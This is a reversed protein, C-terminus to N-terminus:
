LNSTDNEGGLRKPIEEKLQGQLQELNRYEIAWGRLDSIPREKTIFSTNHLQIFPKDKGFALGLAFLMTFDNYSTDIICFSSKRIEQCLQCLENLTEAPSFFNPTFKNPLTAKLLKEVESFFEKNKNYPLAIFINKPESSIEKHPCTTRILCRDSKRVENIVPIINEGISKIISNESLEYPIYEIGNFPKPPFDKKLEEPIHEKQVLLFNLKNLGLAMGFEFIVNLNLETIEFLGIPMQRVASCIKCLIISGKKIHAYDEADCCRIKFNDTMAKKIWKRPDNVWSDEDFPIALFAGKDSKKLNENCGSGTVPCNTLFIPEELQLPIQQIGEPHWKRGRKGMVVRKREKIQNIIKELTEERKNDSCLGILENVRLPTRWRGEPPIKLIPSFICNLSFTFSYPYQTQRPKFSSESLFCPLKLGNTIIEAVTKNEKLNLKESDVIEFRNAQPETSYYLKAELIRGMVEILRTIKPGYGSFIEKPLENEIIWKGTKEAAKSQIDIPIPKGNEINIGKQKALWFANQCLLLFQRIIGSSLGVYEDFGAYLKDRGKKRLLRYIAAEKYHGEFSEWYKKQDKIEQKKKLGEQIEKLERNFEEDTIGEDSLKPKPFLKKPDQEKYKIGKAEQLKLRNIFINTLLDTYLKRNEKSVEFHLPIIEYDHIDLEEGPAYELTKIGGIKSAIKFILKRSRILRNVFIQQYEDLNEFEDMLIFLVKDKLIVKQIIDFIDTIFDPSTTFHLKGEFQSFNSVWPFKKILNQISKVETDLSNIIANFSDGILFPYKEQIKSCIIGEKEKPIDEIEECFFKVGNVLAIMIEMNFLHEFLTGLQEKSLFTINHQSLPNFIDTKLYVGFYKESYDDYRLRDKGIKIKIDNIVGQVSLMRLIHTKGTGRGGIIFKARFDVQALKSIEFPPIFCSVLEKYNEPFQDVLWNEVLTKEFPNEWNRNNM